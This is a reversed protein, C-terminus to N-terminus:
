HIILWLFLPLRLKSGVPADVSNMTDIRRQGAYIGEKAGLFQALELKFSNKNFFSVNIGFIEHKVTALGYFQSGAQPVSRLPALAFFIVRSGPLWLSEFGPRIGDRVM